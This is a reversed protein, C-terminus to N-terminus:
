EDNSASSAIPYRDPPNASGGQVYITGEPPAVPRVWVPDGTQPGLTLGPCTCKEWYGGSSTYADNPELTDGEVLRKGYLQDHMNRPHDHFKAEPEPM